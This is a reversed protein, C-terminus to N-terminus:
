LDTSEFQEKVGEWISAREACAEKMSSALVKISASWEVLRTSAIRAVEAQLTAGVADAEQVASVAYEDAMATQVEYRGLQDPRGMNVAAQHQHVMLKQAQTNARGRMATRRKLAARRDAFAMRENRCLRYQAVFPANAAGLEIALRKTRRGHRLLGGSLMDFLSSMTPDTANLEKGLKSVEMGTIAAREGQERMLAIAGDIKPVAHICSGMRVGENAALALLEANDEGAAINDKQLDELLSTTGEAVKATTSGAVAGLRTLASASCEPWAVGIDDQLTLFLRLVPSQGAVPHHVLANLYGELEQARQLAFQTSQRASAEEIARGAHKEPRHPLITGPCVERLREELAVFHRFRRRVTTTPPVARDLLATDSGGGGGNTSNRVGIAYTWHPPGAFFGADQVLLPDTCSIHGYLPPPPPAGPVYAYTAPHHHQVAGPQGAGPVVGGVSPDSGCHLGALLSPQQQTQPYHHAQHGLPTYPQQPQQQAMGPQGYPSQLQQQQQMQQPTTPVPAPQLNSYQMMQGQQNQSQIQQQQMQQQVQGTTSYMASAGMGAMQQPTGTNISTSNGYQMQMQPQQQQGYAMQQQSQGGYAMQPQPPQMQPQQGYMPDSRYFGASPVPTTQMQQAQAQAQAQAAAQAQAQAQAAAQAQAQAQAQAAAEEEQKRRAAEAAAEAARAEEEADVEDFLGGGSSPVSHVSASLLAAAASTTTTSTPKATATAAAAGTTGATEAPAAAAAESAEAAPQEGAAEAGDGAPAGGEAAAAPVGASLPDDTGGLLGSRELLSGAATTGTGTGTGGGESAAAPAAAAPAPAVIEEGGGGTGNADAPAPAPPPPDDSSMM